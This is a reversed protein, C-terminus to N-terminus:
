ASKLIENTLEMMIQFDKETQHEYGLIHLVGHVFLFKIETLTEHGREKAQKKATPVSIFIEGIVNQGPFSDNLYSLSVVDTTKNVGRQEKNIKQMLADNILTCTILYDQKKNVQNPFIYDFNENIIGLLEDFFIDSIDENTENYYELELM